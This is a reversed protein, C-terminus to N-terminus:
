PNPAPSFGLLATMARVQMERAAIYDMVEELLNPFSLKRCGPVLRGLVRVKRQLAPVRKNVVPKKSWTDGTVRVKRHKKHSLQFRLRNRLIARSWRTRGKAAVALIRDATERIARSGVLTSSAPSSNRRAQRLAKMLKVSYIQQQASTKWRNKQIKVEVVHNEGGIKKRRKCKSERSRNSNAERNSISSSAM